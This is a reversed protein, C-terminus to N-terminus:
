IEVCPNSLQCYVSDNLMNSRWSRQRVFDIRADPSRSRMANASAVDILRLWRNVDSGLAYIAESRVWTLLSTAEM